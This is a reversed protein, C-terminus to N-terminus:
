TVKVLKANCGFSLNPGWYGLLENWTVLMSSRQLIVLSQNGKTMTAQMKAKYYDIVRRSDLELCSGTKTVSFKTNFYLKNRLYESRIKWLRRCDIYELMCHAVIYQPRTKAYFETLNIQDTGEWSQGIKSALKSIVLKNWLEKTMSM